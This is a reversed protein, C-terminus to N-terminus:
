ARDCESSRQSSRGPSRDDRPSASYRFGVCLRPHRGPDCSALRRDIRDRQPHGVDSGAGADGVSHAAARSTSRHSRRSCRGRALFLVAIYQCFTVFGLLLASGSLRYTLWSMAVQQLWTGVLSLGQGFFFLRFNRHALVCLSAIQGNLCDSGRTVRKSQNGGGFRAIAVAPDAACGNANHSSSRWRRSSDM